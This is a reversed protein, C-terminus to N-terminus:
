RTQVTNAQRLIIFRFNNLFVICPDSLGNRKAPLDLITRLNNVNKNSDPHNAWM